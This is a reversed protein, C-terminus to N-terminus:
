KYKLFFLNYKQTKIFQKKDFIYTQLFLIIKSFFYLIKTFFIGIASIKVRFYAYFFLCVKNM